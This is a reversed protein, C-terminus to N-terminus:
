ATPRTVDHLLEDLVGATASITFRELVLRRGREGMAHREAPSMEVMARLETALSDPSGPLFCRGADAESAPTDALRSSLLVPRGAWMYDFLKNPSMGYGYVSSDAVSVLLVDALELASPITAKDVPPHFHVNDLGQQRAIQVLRDHDAGGGILVVAIREYVARDNARLHELAALLTDLGNAIGQAGAYLLVDREGIREFIQKMSSPLPTAAVGDLTTANPIHVCKEPDVGVEAVRRDGHPPVTIIRDAQAYCFRELRALARHAAGGERVAGLDVLVAPWFDRVEFLLPVRYRRAIAVGALGTLLHPSSALVVDPRRRMQIGHWTARVTFDIMSRVRRRDNTAYTGTDLWRFRVGAHQEQRGHGADSQRTLYNFRSAIVTVEHGRKVLEAGLDGHRTIGARGAPLGYQNVILLHMASSPLLPRGEPVTRPTSALEAVMM